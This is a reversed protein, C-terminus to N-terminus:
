SNLSNRVSHLTFTISIYYFLGIILKSDNTKKTIKKQLITQFKAPNHYLSMTTYILLTINM